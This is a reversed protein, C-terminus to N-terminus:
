HKNISIIILTSLLLIDNVIYIFRIILDHRITEIMLESYLIIEKQEYDFVSIFKKLFIASLIWM